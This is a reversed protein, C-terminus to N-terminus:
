LQLLIRPFYSNVSLPTYIAKIATILPKVCLCPLPDVRYQILGKVENQM